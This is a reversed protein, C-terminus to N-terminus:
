EQIPCCKESYPVTTATATITTFLSYFSSKDKSEAEPHVYIMQKFTIGCVRLVFGVFILHKLSWVVTAKEPCTLEILFGVKPNPRKRFRLVAGRPMHYM